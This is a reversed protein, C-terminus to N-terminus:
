ESQIQSVGSEVWGSLHFMKIAGLLRDGYIDASFFVNSLSLNQWSPASGHPSTIGENLFLIKLVPHLSYNGPQVPINRM